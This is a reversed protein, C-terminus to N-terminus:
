SRKVQRPVGPNWCRATMSSCASPASPISCIGMTAASFKRCRSASTGENFLLYKGALDKVYVADTTGDAVAQLLNHARSVSQFERRAIGFILLASVSIFAMGKAISIWLSSEGHVGVRLLAHDTLWIWLIGFTFYALAIRAPTNLRFPSRGKEHLAPTFPM